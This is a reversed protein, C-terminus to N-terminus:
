LIMCSLMETQSRRPQMLETLKFNKNSVYKAINAHSETANCLSGDTPRGGWPGHTPAPARRHSGFIFNDFGTGTSLLDSDLACDPFRNGNDWIFNLSRLSGQFARAFAMRDIAPLTLQLYGIIQRWVLRCKDYNTDNSSLAAWQNDLLNFAQELTKHNYHMCPEEITRPAHTERFAKLARNLESDRNFEKNL